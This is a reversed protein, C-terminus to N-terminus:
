LEEYDLEQPTAEELEVRREAHSKVAEVEKKKPV